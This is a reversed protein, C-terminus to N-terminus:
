VAQTDWTGDEFSYQTKKKYTNTVPDPSSFDGTEFKGKVTSFMTASKAGAEYWWQIKEQPQFTANMGKGMAVPNMFIPDFSGSKNKIGITIHIGNPADETYFDNNGIAMFGPVPSSASKQWVGESNLDFIQGTKCPQWIGRLTISIGDQPSDATWNMGYEPEWKIDVFPALAKSQWVVNFHLQGDSGIVSKAVHLQFQSPALKALTPGDAAITLQRLTSSM